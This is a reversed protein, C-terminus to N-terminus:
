ADTNELDSGDTHTLIEGDTNELFVSEPEEPVDDLLSNGNRTIGIGISVIM